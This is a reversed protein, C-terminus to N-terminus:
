ADVQHREMQQLSKTLAYFTDYTQKKPNQTTLSLTQTKEFVATATM